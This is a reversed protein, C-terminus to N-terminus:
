DSWLEETAQKAALTEVDELMRRRLAAAADPTVVRALDDWSPPGGHTSHAACVAEASLLVHLGCDSGNVQKPCAPTEVRPTSSLGYATALAAAASLANRHVQSAGLSNYLACRRKGPWFALLTWHGGGLPVDPSTNDSVPCLVLTRTLLQLPGTVCGAGAADCCTLFYAVSADLLLISPDSLQETLRHFRFTILTDNLWASSCRLLKVDAERLVLDGRSLVVRAESVDESTGLWM